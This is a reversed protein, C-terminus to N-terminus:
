VSYVVGVKANWNITKGFAGTVRVLASGVGPIVTSVAADVAVDRRTYRVSVSGVMSVSTGDNRVTAVLELGVTEYPATIARGVLEAYIKASLGVGVAATVITSTSANVTTTTGSLSIDSNVWIPPLGVGQTQLVQGSVGPSFATWNTGDYYLLAGTTSGPITLKVVQPNPYSGSLDGGAPGLSGSTIPAFFLPTTNLVIPNPEALYYFTNADTGESVPVIMMPVVEDSSDADSSRTLKGPTSVSGMDTITYVGNDQAAGQFRVLIRDGLTLAPGTVWGGDFVGKTLAGVATFTLDNGSRTAALPGQSSARVALKTTASGGGAGGGGGGAGNIAGGGNIFTPM